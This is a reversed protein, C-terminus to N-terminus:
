VDIGLRLDLSIFFFSTVGLPIEQGYIKHYTEVVKCNRHNRSSFYNNAIPMIKDFSLSLINAGPCTFKLIIDDYPIMYYKM